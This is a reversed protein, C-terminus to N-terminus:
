CVNIDQHFAEIQYNIGVHLEKHEVKDPPENTAIRVSLNLICDKVPINWTCDENLILVEEFIRHFSLNHEINLFYFKQLSLSLDIFIHVLHEFFM